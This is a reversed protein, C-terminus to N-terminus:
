RIEKRQIKIVKIGDKVPILEVRDGAKLIAGIKELFDIALEGFFMDKEQITKIEALRNVPIDMAEAIRKLTEPKPNRLGNEWQAISQYSIGMKQAVDNQTLGLRKREKAIREGIYKDM